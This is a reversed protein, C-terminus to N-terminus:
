EVYKFHRDVKDIYVNDISALDIEYTASLLVANEEFIRVHPFAPLLANQRSIIGRRGDTLIVVTGNPYHVISDKLAKVVAEDFLVGADKALINLAEAPIRKESYVRETTIADFVDAVAIIKAYPHIEASVLGRPYGSGDLREHHQFACHAVLLSVSYLNRLLDFGYRTHNKMEKFEEETLASPKKLIEDPVLLKGIDHLLAGLGILRLEEYPYGLEKAISLAYLTVQFSHHYLYEDYIYADSLITLLDTNEKITSLLSEIIDFLARSQQEIVYTAKLGKEKSVATFTQTIEKVIKLRVIPNVSEEVQIGGSIRDDIYIYNISLQQLREIITNNIVVGAHLLPHGAENWITKSIVMGEKVSKLSILRM